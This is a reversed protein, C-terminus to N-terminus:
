HKTITIYEAAVIKTHPNKSVIEQRVGRTGFWIGLIKFRPVRHLVQLITDRVQISAALTDRTISGTIEIYPTRYDIGLARREPATAELAARVAKASAGEFISDDLDLAPSREIKASSKDAKSSTAAHLLPAAIDYSGVTSVKAVSQVRKLRLGMERLLSADQARLRRLEDLELQLVGTSLASLSDRVRYSRAETALVEVNSAHRRAESARNSCRGIAMVLALALAIITYILYKM